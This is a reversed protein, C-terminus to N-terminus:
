RVHASPARPSISTIFAPLPAAARAREQAAKAASGKAREEDSAKLLNRAHEAVSVLNNELEITLERAAVAGDEWRVVLKDGGILSILDFELDSRNLTAQTVGPSTLLDGEFHLPTDGGEGIIHPIAAVRGMEPDPHGDKLSRVQLVYVDEGPARPVFSLAVARQSSLTATLELKVYLGAQTRVSRWVATGEQTADRDRFSTKVTADLAGAEQAEEVIRASDSAPPLVPTPQSPAPPANAKATSMSALEVRTHRAEIFSAPCTEAARQLLRRAQADAKAAILREGVYFDAECRRETTSAVQAVSQGNRRDLFLEILPFPWANKPVTNAWFALESRGDQGLRSRALFLWLMAYPGAQNYVARVLDSGAAAFDKQDFHLRGRMFLASSSDPSLRVAKNLEAIADETKSRELLIHARAVHANAFSPKLAIARDADRLADDSRGLDLLAASRAILVDPHDPLLSLSKDFDALAASHDFKSSFASARMAFLAPNEANISIAANLDRVAADYDQFTQYASARSALAPVYDPKFSLAKTYSGVAANLNAFSQLYNGSATLLAAVARTRILTATACVGIVIIGICVANATRLSAFRPGTQIPTLSLDEDGGMGARACLALTAYVVSVAADQLFVPVVAGEILGYYAFGILLLAAAGFLGGAIVGGTSSFVLFDFWRPSLRRKGALFTEQEHRRCFRAALLAVICGVLLAVLYFASLLTQPDLGVSVAVKGVLLPYLPARRALFLPLDYAGHLLVAQIFSLSSLFTKRWGHLSEAKALGLGLLLGLFAHFPVASEARSLAVAQWLDEDRLVYFTNEILAFGLGVAAAGLVLDSGTRREFHPRVLFWLAILKVGEELFGAFGFAQLFASDLLNMRMRVLPSVINLTGSIIAIIAGGAVGVGILRPSFRHRGMRLLIAAILAGPLLSCALAAFRWLSLDIM